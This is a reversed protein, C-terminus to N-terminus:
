PPPGARASGVIVSPHGIPLSGLIAATAPLPAEVVVVVDGAVWQCDRLSTQNARAVRAAQACDGTTAAALAAQDAAQDAHQRGLALAALAAGTMGALLLVGLLAALLVSAVGDDARNTMCEDM